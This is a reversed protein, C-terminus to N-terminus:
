SAIETQEKQNTDTKESMEQEFEQNRIRHKRLIERYREPTIVFKLMNNFKKHKESSSNETKLLEGKNYQEEQEEREELAKHPIIEYEPIVRSFCNEVYGEPLQQKNDMPIIATGNEDYEYTVYPQGNRYIDITTGRQSKTIKQELKGNKLYTYTEKGQEDRLYQMNEVSKSLKNNVTMSRMERYEEGYGQMVTEINYIGEDNEIDEHVNINKQGTSKTTETAKRQGIIRGNNDIVPNMFKETFTELAVDYKLQYATFNAFDQSLIIRKGFDDVQQEDKIITRSKQDFSGDSFETRSFIQIGDVSKITQTKDEEIVTRINVGDKQQEIVQQPTEEQKINLDERAYGLDRQAKILQQKWEQLKRDDGILTYLKLASKCKEVENESYQLADEKSLNEKVKKSSTMGNSYEVNDIKEKLRSEQIELIELTIKNNKYASTLSGIQQILSAEEFDVRAMEIEDAIYEKKKRIEGVKKMLVRRQEIINKLYKNYLEKNEQVSKLTVVM